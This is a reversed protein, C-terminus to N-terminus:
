VLRYWIIRGYKKTHKINDASVATGFLATFM